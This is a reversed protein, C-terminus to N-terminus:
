SVPTALAGTWLDTELILHPNPYPAAPPLPLNPFHAVLNPGRVRQVRLALTSWEMEESISAKSVCQQGM